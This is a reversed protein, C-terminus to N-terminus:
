IIKREYSTYSKYYNFFLYTFVLIIINPIIMITMVNNETSIKNCVINTPM